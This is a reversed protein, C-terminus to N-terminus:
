KKRLALTGSWTEFPRGKREADEGYSKFFAVYSMVHYHYFSNEIDNDSVHQHLPRWTGTNFYVQQVDEDGDHSKITGISKQEFEHTHGYIIFRAQYVSNGNEDEGKAYVENEAAKYFNSLLSLKKLSEFIPEMMKALSKRAIPVKGLRSPLAFLAAVKETPDVGWRDLSRFQRTMEKYLEEWAEFITDKNNSFDEDSMGTKNKLNITLHNFWWPVAITPRVNAIEMVNSVFEEYQPPDLKDEINQRLDGALKKRVQDPIKNIMEIVVIDGVSAGRRGTGNQPYNIDDYVDGHRAYVQHSTYAHWLSEYTESNATAPDTPNHPFPAAIPNKLSFADVVKKRISDYKEQIIPELGDRVNLFWDHNGVVYHIRAPVSVWEKDQLEEDSLEEVKQLRVLAQKSAPIKIQKECVLEKLHRISEENEVLISETIEDVLDIFDHNSLINEKWPLLGPQTTWRTSRIIDLIDGLLVIDYGDIPDYIHEDNDDLKARKSANIAMEELHRRFKRFAGSRVTQGTTGDTFHLDSIFVLM